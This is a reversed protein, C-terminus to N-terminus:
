KKLRGICINSLRCKDTNKLRLSSYFCNNKFLFYFILIHFTYLSFFILKFYFILYFNIKLFYLVSFITVILYQHRNMRINVSTFFQDILWLFSVRYDITRPFNHWKIHYQLEVTLVGRNISTSQVSINLFILINWTKVATWFFVLDLRPKM